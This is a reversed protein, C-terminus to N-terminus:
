LRVNVQGQFRVYPFKAENIFCCDLMDDIPHLLLGVHPLFFFFIYPCRYGAARGMLLPQDM